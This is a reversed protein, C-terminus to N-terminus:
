LKKQVNNYQPIGLRLFVNFTNKPSMNSNTEYTHANKEHPTFLQKTRQGQLRM